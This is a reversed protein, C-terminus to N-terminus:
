APQLTIKVDRSIPTIDVINLEIAQALTSLSPLVALDCTQQGLLKPAIYLVLEDLLGQEIVSGALRPGCEVLIENCERQTLVDIVAPLSTYQGLKPVKIVEAGQKELSTFRNPSNACTFIITHGPEHLVRLSPDCRLSTDVIARLPQRKPPPLDSALGLDKSRVTLAPNDALVTDIGTLIASSRARLRQVDARSEPGTIWKSDGSAMSTKGDLSMALKCRIYPLGLEMRKIFGPNLARAQEELVGVLTELGAQRLQAIGAGNVKPNPDLSAVVVSSIGANILAKTCPGTRGSHCCPELTIYATAGHANAGAIKLAEIEAHPGGCVAHFGEAIIREKKVIVCGVRPNPQSTNMGYGAIRIAAAMFKHHISTMNGTETM